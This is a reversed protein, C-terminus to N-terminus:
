DKKYNKLEEELLNYRVLLKLNIKKLRTIEAAQSDMTQTAQSKWILLKQLNDKYSDLITTMKKIDKEAIVFSGEYKEIIEKLQNIEKDKSNNIDLMTVGQLIFEDNMKTLKANEQKLNINEKKIVSAIKKLKEYKSNDITTVTENIESNDTWLGLWEGIWTSTLVSSIGLILELIM